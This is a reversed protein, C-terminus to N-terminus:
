IRKFKKLRNFIIKRKLKSVYDTFIIGNLHDIEHQICTAKLGDAEMEQYKGDYDLYTLTINAPRKVDIYQGPLSLCGETCSSQSESHYTIVPNILCKPNSKRGNDDYDVDYVLVRKLVGVQPAALGCGDQDYMTEYMDDILQHIEKDITEVPHCMENLLPDPAILIQRKAM